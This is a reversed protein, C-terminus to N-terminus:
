FQIIGTLDDVLYDHVYYEQSFQTVTVALMLHTVYM